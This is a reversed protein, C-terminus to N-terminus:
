SAELPHRHVCKAIEKYLLVGAHPRAKAIQCLLKVQSKRKIAKLITPHKQRPEWQMVSLAYRGDKSFWEAASVLSRMPDAEDVFRTVDRGPAGSM